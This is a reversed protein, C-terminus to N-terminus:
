RRLALDARLWKLAKARLATREAADAPAEVGDGQAVRAASCAANVQHATALKADAAFAKEYLRVSAAYRKQFPQGCLYAFECTEAPTKPKARDAVVDPLRPLLDRMRDARSLNGRAITY